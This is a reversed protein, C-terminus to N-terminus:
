PVTSLDLVLVGKPKGDRTHQFFKRFPRGSKRETVGAFFLDCRYRDKIADRNADIDQFLPNLRAFDIGEEAICGDWDGPVPKITTFSGDVFLWRGGAARLETAVERIGALLTQRRSSGSGFKAALTNWTVAHEGPPLLRGKMRPM